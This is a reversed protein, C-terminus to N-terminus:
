EFKAPGGERLANLARWNVTPQKLGRRDLYRKGTKRMDRALRVFIGLQSAAPARFGTSLFVWRDARRGLRGKIQLQKINWLKEDHFHCLIVAPGESVALGPPWEVTFEGTAPDYRPAAQRISVPYGAPDLATVVAEQYEGLRKAAEIWM